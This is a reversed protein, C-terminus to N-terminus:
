GPAGCISGEIIDGCLSMVVVEEPVGEGREGVWVRYGAVEPQVYFFPELREVMEAILDGVGGERHEPVAIDPEHFFEAGGM